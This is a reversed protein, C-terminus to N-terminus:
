GDQWPKLVIKGIAQRSELLRHAQAAASLPLVHHVQVKVQGSGVFGLLRGLAAIAAQPRLGFWLGVNFAVLSQNPAPDYFLGRVAQSDLVLPRGSAAGQVVLRGFPALCRLSQAAVEGGSTELVVDAGLGATLERVREPWDPRTYDVVADAGLALAAERKAPSSAAAIVQGAGLLKALQLAYGGVGGAAGQIVISEGAVLRAAETLLLLASSGAVVIASAEDVGLGPPIPIVQPADAVAYQAYGNAGDNGVLAFVPTGAPPGDVGDGLAAVTGAVEGGPTFPLPTPFPYPDGRRRMVDAYNVAASEVRVLVQGPGPVPEPVDEHVLVDPTGHRHLRVAKMM